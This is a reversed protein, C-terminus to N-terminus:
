LSGSLDDGTLGPCQGDWDRSFGAVKFREGMEGPLILRGVQHAQELHRRPDPRDPDALMQDLGSALLFAAQTTFGDLVLGQSQAAEAVATFDVWATIDQLGPWLFPNGHAHHRYHCILTGDARQPHYLQARPLGYDVLLLLGQKLAGAIGALWPALMPRWESRYGSPLPAGLADAIRAQQALLAEDAAMPRWVFAGDRYGVGLYGIGSERLQFRECPLADIVENALIVGALETPPQELWDVRRVLAPARESLTRQQRAKLEGSTELILYRKPLAELHELELLLDAAMAGSGAGLELIEGGEPLSDLVAACNRALCRAFLPSVEPATVFDGTRGFKAAGASYYGLGPAYLALEMFRSFRIAGGAVGIEEAIRAALTQSHARAAADPQPLAGQDPEASM